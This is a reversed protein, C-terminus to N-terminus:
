PRPEVYYMCPNIGKDKNRLAKIEKVCVNVSENIFEIVAEYPYVELEGKDCKIHSEFDMWFEKMLQEVLDVNVEEMYTSPMQVSPCNVSYADQLLSNLKQFDEYGKKIYGIRDKKPYIRVYKDMIQKFWIADVILHCLYGVYLSDEELEEKYKCEFLSWNIGKKIMGDNNDIHAFHAIDYSGDNHSSADPILSGVIFRNMDQIVVNKAVEVALIYHLMRSAM